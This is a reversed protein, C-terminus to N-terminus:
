APALLSFDGNSWGSSLVRSSSALHQLFWSLMRPSGGAFMHVYTWAQAADDPLGPLEPKSANRAVRRALNLVVQELGVHDFIFASSM